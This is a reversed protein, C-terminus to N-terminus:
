HHIDDININKIYKTQQFYKVKQLTLYNIPNLSHWRVRGEGGIEIQSMFFSILSSVSGVSFRPPSSDAFLSIM